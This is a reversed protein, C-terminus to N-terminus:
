IYGNSVVVQVGTTSLLVNPNFNRIVGKIFSTHAEMRVVQESWFGLRAM